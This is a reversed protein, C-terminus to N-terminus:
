CRGRRGAVTAPSPRNGAGAGPLAGVSDRDTPHPALPPPAVVRSWQCGGGGWCAAHPREGAPMHTVCSLTQLSM